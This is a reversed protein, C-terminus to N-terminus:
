DKHRGKSQAIFSLSRRGKKLENTISADHFNRSEGEAPHLFIMSGALRQTWGEKKRDNEEDHVITGSSETSSADFHKSVGEAPHSFISGALRQSWRKKQDDEEHHFPHLVSDWFGKGEKGKLFNSEATLLTAQLANYDETKMGAEEAFETFLGRISSSFEVKETNYFGCVRTTHVSHYISSFWQDKETCWPHKSHSRLILDCLQKESREYLTAFEGHKGRIPVVFSVEKPIMHLRKFAIMMDELKKPDDLDNDQEVGTVVAIIPVKGACIINNFIEWNTQTNEKFRGRTCYILLSIGDLGRILTYLNAVAKWHPVRGQETENLGATDYIRCHTDGLTVDYYDTQFTCGFPSNAVPAVDYGVLM